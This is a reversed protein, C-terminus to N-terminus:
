KKRTTFAGARAARELAERVDAAQVTGYYWAGAALAEAAVAEYVELASRRGDAFNYAEFQMMRHLGPVPRVKEMADYWAGLDAVPVYVVADM